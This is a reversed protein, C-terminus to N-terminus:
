AYHSDKTLHPQFALWDYGHQIIKLTIDYMAHWRQYKMRYRPIYLLALIAYYRMKRRAQRHKFQLLTHCQQQEFHKFAFLWQSRFWRYFFDYGRIPESVGGIHEVSLTNLKVLPLRDKALRLCLDEDECYMFFDPDFGGYQLYVERKLVLFAGSFWAVSQHPLRPQDFEFTYFESRDLQQRDLVQCTLVGYDSHQQLADALQTLFNRNEIKIDPNTILVHLGNAYSAGLNMARGFGLNCPAQFWRVSFDFAAANLQQPLTFLPSNDVIIVEFQQHSFTQLKLAQLLHIIHVETNYNVIIFTFLM